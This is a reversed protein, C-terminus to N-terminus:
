SLHHPQSASILCLYNLIKVLTLTRSTPFFPHIGTAPNVFGLHSLKKNVLTCVRGLTMAGVTCISHVRESRLNIERPGRPLRFRCQHPVCSM